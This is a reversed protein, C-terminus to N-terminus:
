EALPQPPEPENKQNVPLLIVFRSGIGEASNAWIRGGHMEIMAKAVALGLGMGGHRRTLHSEVQYFRDFIFPLDKAPIGVGNDEVTVKIFGSEQEGRIVVQGGQNTFTIANKLLNSIVIAMKGSDIEVWLENGPDMEVKLAVGKKEAIEHFSASVDKIVRGVSVRQSRILSGGSEYNYVSSLSEIIDKLRSANRIISDVQEEHESGILEKLFTSHGLILGLPTRLEHSTIAIFESKLDDLKRTEDQLSLAKKELLDNQLANAALSALTEVILVDERNYRDKKNLIEFVGVPKDHVILPVCLISRTAYGAIDDITNYLSDDKTVDDIALPKKQLFVRGAISGDLPFKASSITKHHLWPALRFSFEQAVEDYELLCASESGTLEVAASLISQLYPELDVMRSFGRTLKVIRSILKDKDVAM